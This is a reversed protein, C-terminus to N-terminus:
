GAYEGVFVLEQAEDPTVFALAAIEPPPSEGWEEEYEAGCDLNDAPVLWRKDAECRKLLHRYIIECRACRRSWHMCFDEASIWQFYGYFDGKAITGECATCAFPKRARSTGRRM